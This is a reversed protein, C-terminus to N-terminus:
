GKRGQWNPASAVEGPAEGCIFLGLSTTVLSADYLGWPEQAWGPGMGPYGASAQQRWLERSLSSLPQGQPPGDLPLVSSATGPLGGPSGSAAPPLSSSAGPCPLAAPRLVSLWGGQGWPGPAVAHDGHAGPKSQLGTRGPGVGCQGCQAKGPSVSSPTRKLFLLASGPWHCRHRPLNWPKAAHRGSEGGVGGYVGRGAGWESGASWWSLHSKGVWVARDVEVGKCVCPGKDGTGFASEQEDKLVSPRLM